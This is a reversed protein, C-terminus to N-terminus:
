DDTSGNFVAIAFAGGSVEGKIQWAVIRGRKFIIVRSLFSLALGFEDEGRILKPAYRPAPGAVSAGDSSRCVRALAGQCLAMM